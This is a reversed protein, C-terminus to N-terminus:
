AEEDEELRPRDLRIGAREPGEGVDGEEEVEIPGDESDALAVEFRDKVTMGPVFHDRTAGDLVRPRVKGQRDQPAEVDRQQPEYPLVVRPNPPEGPEYVRQHERHEDFRQHCGLRAAARVEDAHEHGADDKGGVHRADDEPLGIWFREADEHVHRQKPDDVADADDHSAPQDPM